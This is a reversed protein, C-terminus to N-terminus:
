RARTAAAGDRGERVRRFQGVEREYARLTHPSLNREDRLYATFDELRWPVVWEVRGCFTVSATTREFEPHRHSRPTVPRGCHRRAADTVASVTSAM